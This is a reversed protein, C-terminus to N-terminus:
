FPNGTGPHVNGLSPFMCIYILFLIQFLMRNTMILIYAHPIIQYYFKSMVAYLVSTIKKRKKIIKGAKTIKVVRYISM